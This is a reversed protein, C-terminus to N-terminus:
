PERSRGVLGEVVSVVRAFIDDEVDFQAGAASITLISEPFPGHFHPDHAFGGENFDEFFACAYFSIGIASFVRHSKELPLTNSFEQRNPSSAEPNIDESNRKRLFAGALKLNNFEQLIDVGDYVHVHLIRCHRSEFLLTVSELRPNRRGFTTLTSPLPIHFWSGPGVKPFVPLGEVNEAVPERFLIQTGWGVKISGALADPTEIELATGHTFLSYQM